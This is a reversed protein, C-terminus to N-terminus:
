LDIKRLIENCLNVYGTKRRNRGSKKEGFESNFNDVDISNTSHCSVRRGRYDMSLTYQGYGSFKIDLNKENDESQRITARM